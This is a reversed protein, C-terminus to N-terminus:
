CVISKLLYAFHQSQHPQLSLILSFITKMLLLPFLELAILYTLRPRIRYNEPESKEFCFFLNIFDSVGLSEGSSDIRFYFLNNYSM